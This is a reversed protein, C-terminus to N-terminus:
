AGVTLVRGAYCRAFRAGQLRYCSLGFFHPCSYEVFFMAENDLTLIAVVTFIRARSDTKMLMDILIMGQAQFSTALSINPHLEKVCWELIEQPTKDKFEDNLNKNDKSNFKM